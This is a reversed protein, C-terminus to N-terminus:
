SIKPLTIVRIGGTPKRPTGPFARAMTKNKKCLATIVGQEGGPMRVTMGPKWEIKEETETV